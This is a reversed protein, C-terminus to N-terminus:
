SPAVQCSIVVLWAAVSALYRWFPPSVKFVLAVKVIGDVELIVIISAATLGVSAIFKPVNWFLFAPKACNPVTLNAVLPSKISAPGPILVPTALTLFADILEALIFKLAGDRIKPELLVVLVTWSNVRPEPRSTVLAPTSWALKIAAPFAPSVTNPTTSNSGTFLSKISKPPGTAFLPIGIIPGFM